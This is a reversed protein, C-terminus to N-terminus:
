SSQGYWEKVRIGKKKKKVDRMGNYHPKVARSMTDDEMACNEMPFDKDPM